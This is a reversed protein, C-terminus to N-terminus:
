NLQPKTSGSHCPTLLVPVPQHIRDVLQPHMVRSDTLVSAPTHHDGCASLGTAAAPTSTPPAQRRVGASHTTARSGRVGAPCVSNWAILSVRSLKASELQPVLLREDSGLGRVTPVDLHVHVATWRQSGPHALEAAPLLVGLNRVHSTTDTALFHREPTRALDGDLWPM